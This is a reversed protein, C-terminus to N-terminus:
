GYTDRPGRGPVARPGSKWSPAGPALVSLQDIPVEPLKEALAVLLDHRMLRLQTAWATSTAQLTLKGEVLSVPRAHEAIGEGVLQDWEVYLRAEALPETWGLAGTLEALASGASGPDRGPEFSNSGESRTAGPARKRPGSFAGRMRSFVLAPETLSRALGTGESM